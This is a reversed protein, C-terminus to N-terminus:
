SFLCCFFVSLEWCHISYILYLTDLASDHNFDCLILKGLWYEGAATGFGDSYEQFTRDFDTSGNFRRLFVIWPGDPSDLDCWVQVCSIMCSLIYYPIACWHLKKALILRGALLFYGFGPFIIIGLYCKQSKGQHRM